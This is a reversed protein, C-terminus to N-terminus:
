SYHRFNILNKCRYVEDKRSIQIKKQSKHPHFGLKKLATFVFNLLSKNYNYFILKYTYTPKHVCFSGEAEYLGRLCSILLEKKGWIWPPIQINLKNRNGAPINLRKSIHKEYIRIRTCNSEGKTSVTAKKGFIIKVLDKYRKIFGSNNANSLIELSETRPFKHIHGDGLVVGIFEALRPDRKFSPYRSKLRGSKTMKLRWRKFNDIKKRKMTDSIKTVSPHTYKTQGKNWPEPRKRLSEKWKKYRPDNKPMLNPSMFGVGPSGYKEIYDGIKMGHKVLHTNTILKFHKGCLSCKIMM